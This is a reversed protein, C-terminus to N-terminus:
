CLISFEAFSSSFKQNSRVSVRIGRGCCNADNYKVSSILATRADIYEAVYPFGLAKKGLQITDPKRL